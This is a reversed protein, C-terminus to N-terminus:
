MRVWRDPVLDRDDISPDNFWQAPAITIGTDPKALWAAWWSFTSNAIIHHDALSMLWFDAMASRSKTEDPFVLPKVANLNAKAWALDDSFVFVPDNGPIREMAAHYYDLSCSAYIAQVIKDTAYDGRRIHLSTSETENIHAALRISDDDTPAPIELEQRIQDTHDQFYRESQFYGELIVPAELSRFAQDFQLHPERYTRAAELKQQVASRLRHAFRFKDPIPDVNGVIPFNALELLRARKRKRWYFSTDVRLSSGTRLSLARGAAYQFLQNGMGGSIRVTCRTRNATDLIM